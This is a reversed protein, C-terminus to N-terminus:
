RVANSEGLYDALVCVSLLAIVCVAWVEDKAMLFRLLKMGM